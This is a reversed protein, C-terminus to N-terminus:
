PACGMAIGPYRLRRSPWVTYVPEVGKPGDLVFTLEQHAKKDRAMFTVLEAAEAGAPLAAPLDYGGVVARHEAVRAEDIRGMRPWSPRSSSGSPWRRGTACTGTPHAEFM